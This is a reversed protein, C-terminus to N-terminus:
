KSILEVHHEQRTSGTGIGVRLTLELGGREHASDGRVFSNASSLFLLRRYHLQLSPSLRLYALILARCVIPRPSLWLTWDPLRPDRCARSTRPQPCAGSLCWQLSRWVM